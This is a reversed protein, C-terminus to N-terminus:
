IEDQFLGLEELTYHKDIMMGKYMDDKSFCPFEFDEHYTNKYNKLKVSIFENEKDFPSVYKYINVVRDKFPKLVGELYTKEKQTLISQEIEYVGNLLYNLIMPCTHDDRDYLFNDRLMYPNYIELVGKSDKIYFPVYMEVGLMEAVQGIKNEAM